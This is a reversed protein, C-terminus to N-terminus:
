ACPPRPGRARSKVGKGAREIQGLVDAGLCEGYLLILDESWEAELAAAVIEHARRCDGGDIFLQAASRAVPPPGRDAALVCCAGHCGGGAPAAGRDPCHDAVAGGGSRGACRAQGPAPAPAGGRGWPGPGPPREDALTPPPPSGSTAGSSSACNPSNM